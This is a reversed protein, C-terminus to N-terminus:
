PTQTKIPLTQALDEGVMRALSLLESIEHFQGLEAQKELYRICVNLESLDVTSAKEQPLAKKQYNALNLITM